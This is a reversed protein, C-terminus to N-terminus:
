RSRCLWDIGPLRLVARGRARRRVAGQPPLLDLFLPAGPHPRERRVIVRTGDPCGSLDTMGTPEAAEASGLLSGDQELPPHVLRTM